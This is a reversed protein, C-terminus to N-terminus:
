QTHQVVVRGGFPSPISNKYNNSYKNKLARSIHGINFGNKGAASITDYHEVTGNDYTMTFSKSEGEIRGGKHSNWGINSTPRFFEEVKAIVQPDYHWMLMRHKIYEDPIEKLIRFMKRENGNGSVDTKGLGSYQLRKHGEVRQEIDQCTVGIYGDIFPDAETRSDWIFYLKHRTRNM